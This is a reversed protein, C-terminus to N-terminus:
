FFLKGFGIIVGRVFNIAPAATRIRNIPIARTAGNFAAGHFLSIDTAMLASTEGAILDFIERPRLALFINQAGDRAPFLQTSLLKDFGFFFKEGAIIATCLKKAPGSFAALAACQLSSFINSTFRERLTAWFYKESGALTESLDLARKLRNCFESAAWVITLASRASRWSKNTLVSEIAAWISITQAVPRLCKQVSKRCM